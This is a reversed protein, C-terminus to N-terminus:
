LRIQIVPLEPELPKTNFVLRSVNSENRKLDLIDVNDFNSEVIMVIVEDCSYM